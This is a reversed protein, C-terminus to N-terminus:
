ERFTFFTVHHERVGSWAVDVLVEKMGAVPEGSTVEWTLRFKAGASSPVRHGEPSYFRPPHPEDLLLPSSQPLIAVQELFTEAIGTAIAMDKQHAFTASMLGFVGATSTLAIIMISGAFLTELLSFGRRRACAEGNM